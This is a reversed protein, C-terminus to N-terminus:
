FNRISKQVTRVMFDDFITKKILNIQMLWKECVVSKEFLKLGFFMYIECPIKMLNMVKEADIKADIKEHIKSPFPDLIVGFKICAVGGKPERKAVKESPQNQSANQDGRPESKAGKQSRKAGKPERKAGRPERKAGKPESKAGKESGEPEM